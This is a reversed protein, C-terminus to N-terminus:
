NTFIDLQNPWPKILIQDRIQQQQQQQQETGNM